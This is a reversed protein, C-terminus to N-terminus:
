VGVAELGAVVEDREVHHIEPRGVAALLVMRLGVRDRKKDLRILDLVHDRDLSPAKTPLGVAELTAVIEAEDAFGLMDAAIRAEAVLGVAVSDGHPWGSAFEVAHGVTHGLNLLARRGRETFDEDVIRAKVEIAPPVVREADVDLGHERYAAVIDPADLLGAKIVEAAGERRLAPPLADLVDLDVIVRTPHWFAGVLNKGAVNIATKGGVAADVAAVLTTPVQVVEIGRLWTAAVFGGADTAAGGGVVVITDARGIGLDALTTYVAGVAELTKAAEGDALDIRDLPVEIDEGVAEAVEEAGPQVLLVARARGDSPPLFPRPRGRGVLVECTGGILFRDM